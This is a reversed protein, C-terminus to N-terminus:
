LGVYVTFNGWQIIPDNKFEPTRSKESVSIGFRKYGVVLGYEFEMFVRTLSDQPITYPSNRGTFMGGQLVSKDMFATVMPKMYFYYQYSSKNHVKGKELRVGPKESNSFYSSYNGARFTLGTTIQNYLTGADSGLLGIVEFKDSPSILLKEYRIEYNIIIDNHVQNSWGKPEQDGILKHFEIQTEGALSAPGIVGLDIESTIKQKKVEDSSILSHSLYLVGAYPRDGKIINPNSIDSPTFMAQTIGISYLNNPANQLPILLSTLFRRKERKTYFLDIKTGDTYYKDTGEGRLNIFDDDEYIRLVQPQFNSQARIDTPTICLLVFSLFVFHIKNIRM